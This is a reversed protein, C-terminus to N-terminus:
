FILPFDFFIGVMLIPPISKGEMRLPDPPLPFHKAEGGNESHRTPLSGWSHPPPVRPNFIVWTFPSIFNSFYINKPFPFKITTPFWKVHAPKYELHIANFYYFFM